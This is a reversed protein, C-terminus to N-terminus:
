GKGGCKRHYFDDNALPVTGLFTSLDGNGIYRPKREDKASRTCM